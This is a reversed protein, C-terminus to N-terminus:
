RGGPLDRVTEKNDLIAEAFTDPGTVLSALPTDLKPANKWEGGVLTEVRKVEAKVAKRYADHGLPPLLAPLHPAATHRQVFTVRM